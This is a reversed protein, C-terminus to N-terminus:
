LLKKRLEQSALYNLHNITNQYNKNLLLSLNFYFKSLFINNCKEYLLGLRNYFLGFSPYKKICEKLIDLKSFNKKDYIFPEIDKYNLCNAINGSYIPEYIKHFFVNYFFESIGNCYRKHLLEPIYHNGDIISYIKINNSKNFYQFKLASYIDVLEFEGCYISIRNAFNKLLTIDIYEKPVINSFNEESISKSEPLFLITEPSISIIEIFINKDIFSTGILHGFLLAAYAGMSSGIVYINHIKEKDSYLLIQEIIQKFVNAINQTKDNIIGSHYWTNESSRIFLTSINLKKFTNFFSFNKTKKQDRASFVIFLTDSLKDGRIFHFNDNQNDFISSLNTM